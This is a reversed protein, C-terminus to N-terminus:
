DPDPPPQTALYARWLDLEVYLEFFIQPRLAFYGTMLHTKQADLEANFKSSAIMVPAYPDEPVADWWGVNRFQRLYWPLPWYDSEPSMIKVLMQPGDAHARALAQLRTSLNLIDPSTHAYVYPNRQDAAYPGCARWAQWALHGAGAALLVCVSWQIPRGRTARVLVAAGIGALLITGHWFGMLCWPTKYSILTYGTMLAFTYFALFRAFGAHSDGLGKRRFAAVAGVLALALILAESWWPGNETRFFLLRNLYFHWPNIHPSEGGARELWPLYTRVSDLLGAANSFFSSFLVIAAAAWVGFAAAIHARHFRRTSEPQASADIWRKWIENAALACGFAILTIVFTEKTAHMLGLAAGALLAWSLKRSTWYRWIAGIALFTFFVLLIEHIYYRSYFVMAPSVATFLAAWFMAARGLGDWVMALLLILGIGFLVTVARLRAESFNAFDPAGTLRALALTAYHLSPGHYEHPDYRYSGREWLEGFKIANVAEDNHMPRGGLNPLQLALALGTAVLLGLAGWRNM